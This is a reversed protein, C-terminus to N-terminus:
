CLVFVFVCIKVKEGSCKDVKILTMAVMSDSVLGRRGHFTRKEVEMREAMLSIVPRELPVMLRRRRLKISQFIGGFGLELDMLSTEEESTTTSGVHLRQNRRKMGEEVVVAVM